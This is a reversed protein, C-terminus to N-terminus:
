FKITFKGIIRKDLGRENERYGTGVSVGFASNDTIKYSVGFPYFGKNTIIVDTIWKFCKLYRFGIGGEFDASASSAGAGIVAVPEFIVGYPRLQKALEPIDKARIVKLINGKNDVVKATGDKEIRLYHENLKITAEQGKLDFHVPKGAKGKFYGYAFIVGIILLALPILRLYTSIFKSPLLDHKIKESLSSVEYAQVVPKLEEKIIGEVSAVQPIQRIRKIVKSRIFSFLLTVLIGTLIFGEIYNCIIKM